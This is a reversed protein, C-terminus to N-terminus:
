GHFLDDLGEPIRLHTSLETGGLPFREPFPPHCQHTALRLQSLNAWGMRPCRMSFGAAGGEAISRQRVDAQQLIAVMPYALADLTGRDGQEWVREIAM